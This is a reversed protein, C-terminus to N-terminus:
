EVPDMDFFPTCAQPLYGLALSYCAVQPYASTDPATAIADACDRAAMEGAVGEIEVGCSGELECLRYREHPGCGTDYGCNELTKCYSDLMTDVAEGWTYYDQTGDGCAALTTLLSFTLALQRM